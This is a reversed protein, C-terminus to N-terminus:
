IETAGCEYLIEKIEQNKAFTLATFTRQRRGRGRVVKVNPDIGEVSCILKTIKQLGSSASVMLYTLNGENRGDKIAGFDFYSKVHTIYDSEVNPRARSLIEFIKKTSTEPRISSGNFVERWDNESSQGKILKLATIGENNATTPDAGGEVLIKGIIFRDLKVAKNLILEGYSDVMNLEFNGEELHSTISALDNKVIASSISEIVTPNIIKAEKGGSVKNEQVHRQCGVIMLLLSLFLSLNTKFIM